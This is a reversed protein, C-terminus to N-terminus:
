RLRKHRRLEGVSVSGFVKTSDNIKGLRVLVERYNENDDLMDTNFLHYVIPEDDEDLYLINGENLVFETGDTLTITVNDQLEFQIPPQEGNTDKQRNCSCSVSTIIFIMSILLYKIINKM